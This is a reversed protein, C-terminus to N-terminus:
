LTEVNQSIYEQVKKEILDIQELDILKKKSKQMILPQNTKGVCKKLNIHFSSHPGLPKLEGDRGILHWVSLADICERANNGLGEQMEKPKKTKEDKCRFSLISGFLINEIFSNNAQNEAHNETEPFKLMKLTEDNYDIYFYCWDGIEVPFLEMEDSEVAQEINPGMVLRMSNGMSNTKKRKAKPPALKHSTISHFRKLRDNSVKRTPNSLYWVISSKLVNKITGDNECIEIFRSNESLESDGYSRFNINEGRNVRSTISEEDNVEDDNVQDSAQDDDDLDDDSTEQDEENNIQKHALNRLSSESTSPGALIDTKTFTKAPKANNKAKTKTKKNTKKGLPCKRIDSPVFSLEFEKATQIADQFARSISHVIEQKSPLYSVPTETSEAIKDRPFDIINALKFHVIDNQLEIKEIMHLLEMVGFNIKTYNMTGMSRLQRFTRECPQSDFINPHFIEPHESLAIILKILEIANLEICAYCNPTLFNESLNYQKSSLIYSRWIRLLYVVYWIRYVREVPTLNPDLFSTTAYKCIQIYLITAESGPVHKRLAEIVREDMIKELSKFNMRDNPMIDYETLGHQDKPVQSVLFKLHSLSIVANGFPLFISHKLLRNRLKTGIHTPDQFYALWDELTILPYETYEALNLPDFCFNVNQQMASLLKPDGDAAIGIVKIGM